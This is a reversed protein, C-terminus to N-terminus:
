TCAGGSFVALFADIDTTDPFLGDNNFDIDSCDNTSCPGGSFVSLFDDIDQTDPFLGDNNFDVPDCTPTPACGPLFALRSAAVSGATTFLGGAVLGEPAPGAGDPDWTILEFVSSNMGPGLPHWAAGDWSAIYNVTQTDATTFTGGAILAPAAPGPGDTDWPRLTFVTNNMGAGMPHWAGDFRAVKSAPSGSANLFTGGAILQAPSPGPGDPDWTTLSEVQGDMGGGVTSWAAGDWFAIRPTSAGGATQFFGGAAIGPLAPGPGDPDWTTLAYVEDNMGTSFGQWTTGDWRAVRRRSLGGAVTFGGGIVLQEPAPGPGDPDWLTACYVDPFGNVDQTGTSLAGWASGNWHAINRVTTAAVQQFFGGMAVENPLPGAGDPDYSMMVSPFGSSTVGTGMNHWAGDFMACRAAPQGGANAFTGGVVLRAPTNPDGDADWAGLAGVFNDLAPGGAEFPATWEGPCQAHARAALLGTCLLAATTTRPLM